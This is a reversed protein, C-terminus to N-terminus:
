RTSKLMERLFGMGYGSLQIVAAPLSLIAVEFSRTIRAADIAIVALYVLYVSLVVRALTFSVWTFVPLLILGVLFVAPFWHVLKVAGSHVKGVRIRGRGFGSVQKFFQSFNTRRKHFVYAEPILRTRFGAKSMRISLEIDEALRDFQFGKTKQFVERSIGMNFSRPQFGDTKGGRIGGTTFISSMTYAM